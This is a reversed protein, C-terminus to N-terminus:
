SFFLKHTSSIVIPVDVVTDIPLFPKDIRSVVGETFSAPQAVITIVNILALAIFIITIWKNPINKQKKFELYIYSGWAILSVIFSIIIAWLSFAVEKPDAYQMFLQGFILYLAFPIFGILLCLDSLRLKLSKIWNKM